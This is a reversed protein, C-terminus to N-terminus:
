FSPESKAERQCFVASHVDERNGHSRVCSRISNRNYFFQWVRLLRDCALALTCVKDYLWFRWPLHHNKLSSAVPNSCAVVSNCIFVFPCIYDFFSTSPPTMSRRRQWFHSWQQPTRNRRRNIEDFVLAKYRKDTLNSTDVILVNHSFVDHYIYTRTSTTPKFISIKVLYLFM